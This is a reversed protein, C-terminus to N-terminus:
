EELVKSVSFSSKTGFYDITITMTEHTGKGKDPLGWETTWMVTGFCSAWWRRQSLDPHDGLVVQLLVPQEKRGAANHM